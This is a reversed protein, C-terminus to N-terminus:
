SASIIESICINFLLWILYHMTYAYLTRFTSYQRNMFIVFIM